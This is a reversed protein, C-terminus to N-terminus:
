IIKNVDINYGSEALEKAVDFKWKGSDGDYNVYIVGHIDSPFEFDGKNEVLAVVKKRGLKATFFGLEFIVNQRARKKANKDGEKISYGIDDSSLLVIAFGVNSNTLFKEIITQGQNSKEHLIVPELGLKEITRAVSLRMAENHGHVIFINNNLINIENVVAISKQENITPLIIIEEKKESLELDDIIIDIFLKLETLDKEWINNWLDKKLQFLRQNFINNSGYKKEVIASLRDLLSNFIGADFTTAFNAKDIVLQDKVEKLKSIFKEM